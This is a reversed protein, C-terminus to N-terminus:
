LELIVVAIAYDKDHSISVDCQKFTQWQPAVIIKPRGNPEHGIQIDQFKPRLGLCKFFAEKAALIGALHELSNDGLEKLDFFKKLTADHKVIRALSPIYVIDTGCKISM